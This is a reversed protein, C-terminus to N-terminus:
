PMRWFLVGMLLFVLGVTWDWGNLRRPGYVKISDSFGRSRMARFIEESRLSTKAFIFAMRGAVWQWAGGQRIKRVWRSKKALHMELLTKSLIFFYKYTLSAIILLGDPIKMIKLARIVEPFPTTYLVVFVLALSNTLRLTLMVVGLLGEETLGIEKPVHYVWFDYSRPLSLVPLILKGNTVLNLASPLSMLVGFFFGFLLVKKYFSWLSLRSLCVLALIFLGMLGESLMERKLSIIVVFTILFLIKIRADTKQLLGKKFSADSHAYTWQLVETLNRIAKEFFPARLRGEFGPHAESAKKTLLFSPIQNKM